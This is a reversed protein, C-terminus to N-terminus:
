RVPGTQSQRNLILCLLNLTQQNMPTKAKFPRNMLPPKLIFARRNVLKNRNVEPNKKLLPRTKPRIPSGLKRAPDPKPGAFM